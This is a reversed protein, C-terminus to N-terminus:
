KMEKKLEEVAKDLQNDADPDDEDYDYRVEVDPTIGKGNINRGKPTYYEAITLKLCTGDKLDYIQQVVGKGYTTTGVIKGLGYDQIAGAYIESASASNADVLVTLPLTFQHEEDSSADERNGDKDETYVILGEPLMLDLIDCVTQLNGGPNGRLDVVLGEMGEKELKKLGEEYQEYTVSDFESVALYGINDELMKTEVTEVEIKGRTVTVEVKKNKAGRLVTMKVQTGKEGKIRSVVENLDEGTVEADEVMYLIDNDKLGAKMAPSDDYVHTLTIVGSDKDQTMVAGIGEYEGETTEMLAKTDEEDYYVSYLDDLGSIYGEYIGEELATEDAEHLYNQDILEKLISLKKKVGPSVVGKAGLGSGSNVGCSVVGVILLIALAGCLAGQLFSKKNKM